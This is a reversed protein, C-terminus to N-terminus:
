TLSPMFMSEHGIKWYNSCPKFGATRDKIFYKDDIVRTFLKIDSEAMQVMKSNGHLTYLWSDMKRGSAIGQNGAKDAQWMNQHEMTPYYICPVISRQWRSGRLPHNIHEDSKSRDWLLDRSYSNEPKYTWRCLEHAQKVMLMPLDAAYYFLVSEVNPYRDKFHSTVISSASDMLATYLNGSVARYIVPKDIGYVVSIKSGSEALNKIHKFKDLSHRTGGSLHIWHGLQEYIWEDTKLSMMDEFYDHLTIKIEPHSKSIKDMLPLQAFKTESIMGNFSTDNKDFKWNNLGSFPAAAIIEDIKLNNNLFSYVMNTSDAGGSVMLIVYDNEERIQRARQAYLEALSFDPEVTWDVKEFISKNFDWDVDALTENAFLIAQLKNYFIKDNVKYFGLKPNM